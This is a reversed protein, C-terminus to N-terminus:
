CLNYLKKVNKDVSSPSRIVGFRKSKEKIFIYIKVHALKQTYMKNQFKQGLCVNILSSTNENFNDKKSKKIITSTIKLSDHYFHKIEKKSFYCILRTSSKQRVTLLLIEISSTIIEGTIAYMSM